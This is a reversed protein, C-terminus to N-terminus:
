AQTGEGTDALAGTPGDKVAPLWLGGQGQSGWDWRHRAHTLNPAHCVRVGASSVRLHGIAELNPCDTLELYSPRALRRIERFGGALFLYIPPAEVWDLAEGDELTLQLGSIEPILDGVQLYSRAEDRGVVRNGGKWRLRAQAQGAGDFRGFFAELWPSLFREVLRSRLLDKWAPRLEALKWASGSLFIANFDPDWHLRQEAGCAWAEVFAEQTVGRGELYAIRTALDMGLERLMRGEQPPDGLGDLWDSDM